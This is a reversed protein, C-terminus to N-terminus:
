VRERRLARGVAALSLPGGRQSGQLALAGGGHAVGQAREHQATAGAHHLNATLIGVVQLAVARGGLQCHHLHCPLDGVAHFIDHGVYIGGLLAVLHAAGKVKVGHGLGHAGAPVVGLEGGAQAGHLAGGLGDQRAAGAVRAGVAAQHGDHVVEGGLAQAHQGDGLAGVEGQRLGSGVNGVRLATVNLLIQAQQGQAGHTVRGLLGGDGSHRLAEGGADHHAHEGAVVGGGRLGNGLLNADDGLAGSALAHHGGAGLHVGHGVLLQVLHLLQGEDHRAAGRLALHAHHLCQVATALNHGHRTIADVVRGGDLLGVNANGHADGARVDGLANRVNHQCVVVEGGDHGSHLLAATDECGDAVEHHVQQASVHGLGHHEHEGQAEDNVALPVGNEHEAGNRDQEDVSGRAGAGGDTDGHVVARRVQHLAGRHGVADEGLLGDHVAKHIAPQHAAEGQSRETQVYPDVLVAVHAGVAVGTLASVAVVHQM